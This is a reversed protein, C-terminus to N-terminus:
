RKSFSYAGTAPSSPHCWYVLSSFENVGVFIHERSFPSHNSFYAPLGVAFYIFLQLLFVAMSTFHVGCVLPSPQSPSLSVVIQVQMEEWFLVWDYGTTTQIAELASTVTALTFIPESM